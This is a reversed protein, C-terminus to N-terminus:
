LQSILQFSIFFVVCDSFLKECLIDFEIRSEKKKKKATERESEENADMQRKRRKPTKPEDTLEKDVFYM